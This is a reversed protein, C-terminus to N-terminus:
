DLWRLGDFMREYDRAAHRHDEDKEEDLGAREIQLWESEFTERPSPAIGLRLCAASHDRYATECMEREQRTASSRRERREASIDRKKRGGLASPPRKLNVDAM